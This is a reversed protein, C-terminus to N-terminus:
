AGPLSAAPPHFGTTGGARKRPGLRPARIADILRASAKLGRRLALQSRAVRPSTSLCRRQVHRSDIRQRPCGCRDPWRRVATDGESRWGGAEVPTIEARRIKKWLINGFEPVILDPAYLAITPDLLRAAADSHIEPLFWKAAVSADVVVKMM